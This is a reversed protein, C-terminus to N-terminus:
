KRLRWHSSRPYVTAIGVNIPGRKATGSVWGDGAWVGIFWGLDETLEVEKCLEIDQLKLNALQTDSFLKKPRPIGWGIGNTAKFRELNGTEPSMGFMSHDESVKVKRGTSTEVEVMKLDHHVSFHTVDTLIVRQQKESYGFVKVGPPVEYVEKNGKVIVSEKNHPCESIHLRKYWGNIVFELHSDASDGDYDANMGQEVFPNVRITRGPVLRPYAAVMNYRHLTPARNIVVPREKIEYDLFKKAVPHRDKVLNDAELATYGNQVLRKILLKGYMEWGMDDPIGVEDMGLTNDPVITGRGAMDQTRKMLKSHFYGTKPSNVGSIYTLFGKHGRAKSKATIPENTGYVAGVAANLSPRLRKEEDPLLKSKKVEKVQNNVYLLDRYLPNIDGYLIEQGGRGPLIPRFMPPLVPIKSVVYANDPTLGQAKLARIYKIQKIDDDLNSASKKKMAALLEKERTDLNIKALEKRISVGGNEQLEKDLQSNTMGLFRRVPERFIPNVIPEALNIHSWKAGTLGGTVAPDFLGDREPQLDKSKVLKPEKIEGSSMEKVDDDTLPSISM